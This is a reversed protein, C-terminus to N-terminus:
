QARAGCADDYLLWRESGNGRFHTQSGLAKSSPAAPGQAGTGMGILLSDQKGASARSSLTPVARGQPDAQPNM